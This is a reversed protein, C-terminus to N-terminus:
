LKTELKKLELDMRTTESRIKFNQKKPFLKTEKQFAANVSIFRRKKQLSDDNIEYLRKRYNRLTETATLLRKKV